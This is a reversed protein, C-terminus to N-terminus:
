GGTVRRDGLIDGLIGGVLFNVVGLYVWHVVSALSTTLSHAHHMLGLEVALVGLIFAIWNGVVAVSNGVAVEAVEPNSCLLL